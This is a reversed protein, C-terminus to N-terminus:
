PSVIAGLTTVGSTEEPMWSEELIVAEIFAASGIALDYFDKTVFDHEHGYWNYWQGIVYIATSGHVQGLEERIKIRMRYELCDRVVSKDSFDFGHSLLFYLWDLVHNHWTSDKQRGWCCMCNVIDEMGPPVPCVEKLVILSQVADSDFASSPIAVTHHFDSRMVRGDIKAKGLM